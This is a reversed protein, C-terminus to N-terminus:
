QANYKNRLFELTENIAKDMVNNPPNGQTIGSQTKYYYEYDEKSHETVVDGGGFLGEGGEEVIKRELRNTRLDTASPKLVKTKAYTGGAGFRNGPPLTYFWYVKGTKPNLYGPDRYKGTGYELFAVTDGVASVTYTGKESESVNVIVDNTAGDYEAGLYFSEASDRMFEAADKVIEEALQEGAVTIGKLAATLSRRSVRINARGYYNSM